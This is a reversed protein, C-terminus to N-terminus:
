NIKAFNINDRTWISDAPYFKLLIIGLIIELSLSPSELAGEYKKELHSPFIVHVYVSCDSKKFRSLLYKQCFQRRKVYTSFGVYM